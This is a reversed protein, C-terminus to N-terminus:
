GDIREREHTFIQFWRISFTEETNSNAFKLRFRRIVTDVELRYEAFSSTLTFTTADSWTTGSDSSYSVDVSNGKAEFLVEMVRDRGDPTDFYFDKSEFYSSIKTGDDDLSANDHKYVNGSSDGYVAIEAGGFLARSDFRWNQQNITGVLDDITVNAGVRRYTGGNTMSAKTEGYSWVKTRWNYVLHKDCTSNGTSPYFLHYEQLEKVVIAFARSRYYTDINDVIYHRVAKGVSEQEASGDWIYADDWGLYMLAGGIDKVTQGAPTGGNTVPTSFHYITTSGSYRMLVNSHQKIIGVCGYFPIAAMIWYPDDVLDVYSATGGTFDDVTGVNTWRVRQHQANGGETTAFFCLRNKFALVIEATTFQPSGAINADTAGGTWKRVQDKGNAIFFTDIMQTSYFVDDLDGTFDANSIAIWTDTLEVYKYHKDLTACLTYDTGALKQFRAIHMISDDLPLATQGFKFYGNRQEARDQHFIINDANPSETPKIYLPYLEKNIGGSPIIIDQGKVKM